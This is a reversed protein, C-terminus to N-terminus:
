KLEEKIKLSQHLTRIMENLGLVVDNLEKIEKQLNEKDLKLLTTNHKEQALDHQMQQRDNNIKDLKRKIEGTLDKVTFYDTNYSYIDFLNLVSSIQELRLQKKRDSEINDKRFDEIIKEKANEYRRKIEESHENVIKNVESQSYRKKFFGFM